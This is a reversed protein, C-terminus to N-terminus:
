LREHSAVRSVTGPTRRVFTAWAVVLLATMKNSGLQTGIILAM